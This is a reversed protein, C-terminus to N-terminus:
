TSSREIEIDEINILKEIAKIVESHYDIPYSILIHSKNFPELSVKEIEEKEEIGFDIDVDWNALEKIDWEEKLIDFDYEGYQNNDTIVFRRREEETLDSDKKVWEDPIEKYGLKKLARYRMNGGIIINDKDIIIPRLALMKPFEKLSKCLNEFRSDKIFRPNKQNEKLESLKIM